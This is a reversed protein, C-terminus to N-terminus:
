AFKFDAAGVMGLQTNQLLITGAGAVSASLDIRVDSGVQTM